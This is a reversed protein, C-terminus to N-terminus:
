LDSYFFAFICCRFISLPILRAMILSTPLQYQLSLFETYLFELCFSSGAVKYASVLSLPQIQFLLLADCCPM